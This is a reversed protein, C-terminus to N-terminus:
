AAGSWAVVSSSRPRGGVRIWVESFSTNDRVNTVDVGAEDLMRPDAEGEDRGQRTLWPRAQGTLRTM